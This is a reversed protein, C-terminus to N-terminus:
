REVLRMRSNFWNMFASTLLSLTLYVGMWILVIEIAKGTQNLVTGGMAVLDPYAIAVALSSNKTLNLYQSALPPIIIRLAQPIVVLRTVLGHRLGLASAAESQGRSVAQIGARVIEAIFAGTYVSLAVLLAMFEPVITAGGSFQFGGLVPYDFTVPWGALLLGLLPLGIIAVIGTSLHPFPEGTRVQRALAWRRIFYAAAIGALLGILGAVAGDGFVPSPMNLGRNSLYMGGGEGSFMLRALFSGLLWFLFFAIVGIVVAVFAVAFRTLLSLSAPRYARWLALCSAAAAALGILGIISAFNGTFFSGIDLAQRPGPLPKLVAGYWIFIQLLLPVNRVIEVYVTALKAIMWNRSLRAIGMAFGIITALFIGIVAVLLTNLFGIIIARGYSSANTYPILSQSIDFGSSRNWFEYGFTKNLRALNVSANYYLDYALWALAAVMVAQIVRARIKPDNWLPVKPPALEIGPASM